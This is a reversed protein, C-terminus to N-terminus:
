PYELEPWWDQGRGEPGRDLVSWLPWMFDVHRPNQGPEPPVFWLESSWAHRIAGDRRTFVTAMACQDADSTEALYDRNYTSHASSLLRASRWGRRQGHGRLREIPAKAAVAFAIRQSIHPVAGDIGDIISTCLPCPAELPTGTEGPNFMHSYLFLTEHRGFLASMRVQRPAQTQEDWEEFIYDTSVEGGPPLGRRLQAVAEVQRRLAVEAELLRERAARYEESEGPFRPRPAETTM